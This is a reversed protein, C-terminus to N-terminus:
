RFGLMGRGAVSAPIAWVGSEVHATRWVFCLGILLANHIRQRGGIGGSSATETKERRQERHAGAESLPLDPTEHVLVREESASAFDLAEVCPRTDSGHGALNSVNAHEKVFVALLRKGNEVWVFHNHRASYGGLVGFAGGALPQLRTLFSLLGGVPM